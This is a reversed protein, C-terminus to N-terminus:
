WRAEKSDSQPLPSKLDRQATMGLLIGYALAREESGLARVTSVLGAIELNSAPANKRENM